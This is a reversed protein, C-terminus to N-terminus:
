PQPQSSGDTSVPKLLSKRKPTLAKKFGAGIQGSPKKEADGEKAPAEDAPKDAKPQALQKKPKKATVSATAKTGEQLDEASLTPLSVALLALVLALRM